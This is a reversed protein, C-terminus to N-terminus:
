DSTLVVKTVTEVPGGNPGSVEQAIRDGYKKPKLKAAVWKRADVRLRNRAVATSDFVVATTGDSGAVVKTDDEDAIAVIEDALVDAQEEKARAYQDRFQSNNALWHMVTARGPMDAAGCISRLSQGDLIAECIRDAIDQTYDSPRAM